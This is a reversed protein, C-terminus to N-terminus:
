YDEQLHAGESTDVEIFTYKISCLDLCTLITRTETCLADGWIKLEHQTVPTRIQIGQDLSTKNPNSCCVGM